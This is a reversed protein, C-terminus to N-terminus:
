IAFGEAEKGFQNAEAKSRGERLGRARTCELDGSPVRSGVDM